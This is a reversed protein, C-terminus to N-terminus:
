KIQITERALKGFTEMKEEAADLQSCIEELINRMGSMTTKMEPLEANAKKINKMSRSLIILIKEVKQVYTANYLVTNTGMDRLPIIQTM